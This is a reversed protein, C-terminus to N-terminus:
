ENAEVAGLLAYIEEQSLNDKTLAWDGLKELKEASPYRM